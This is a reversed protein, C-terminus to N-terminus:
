AESVVEDGKSTEVVVNEQVGTTTGLNDLRVRAKCVQDRWMKLWKLEEGEGEEGAILLSEILDSLKLGVEEFKKSSSSLLIQPPELSGALDDAISSLSQVLPSSSILFTSSSYPSENAPTSSSTSTSPLLTKSTSSSSSSSSSPKIPATSTILRKLLLRGLRLLMHAAKVREKEVESLPHSNRYDDEDEDEDEDEGYGEDEVRSNNDEEMEKVEELCDDLLELISKWEKRTSELETTSLSTSALTVKEWVQGTLTLNLTRLSSSKQKTTAKHCELSSELLRQIAETLEYAIWRTLFFLFFFRFSFKNTRKLVFGQWGILVGM